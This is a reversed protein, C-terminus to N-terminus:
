NYIKNKLESDEIINHLKSNKHFYDINYKGKNNFVNFVNEGPGRICKVERYYQESMFLYHNLKLDLKNFNEESWTFNKINIKGDIFINNFNKLSCDHVNLKIVYDTKIISKCYGLPKNGNITLNERKVLSNIINEPQDKNDNCGFIKWPICVKHVNDPLKQLVDYIKNHGNSAYVYEDIDVIMLWKTKNKLGLENFVDNYHKSQTGKELKLPKHVITFYSKYKEIKKMYDDNSGNDILFLHNVGERIYHQVWEEIIMSENKFMALICLDYM